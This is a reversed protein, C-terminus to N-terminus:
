LGALVDQIEARRAADTWVVVNAERLVVPAQNAPLDLVVPSSEVGAADAETQFVTVVFDQPENPVLRVADPYLPASQGEACRRETRGGVEDVDRLLEDCSVDEELPEAVPLGAREFAQAVGEPTHTASDSPAGESGCGTVAAAVVLAVTLRAALRVSGRHKARLDRQFVLRARRASNM